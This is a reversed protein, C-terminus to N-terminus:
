EDSNGGDLLRHVVLKIFLTSALVFYIIGAPTVHTGPFYWSNFFRWIYTFVFRVVLVADAVM